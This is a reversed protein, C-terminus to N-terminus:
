FLRSKEFLTEVLEFIILYNLLIISNIIYEKWIATRVNNFHKDCTLLRTAMKNCVKRETGM